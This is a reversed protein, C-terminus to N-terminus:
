QLKGGARRMLGFFSWFSQAAVEVMSLRCTAVYNYVLTGWGDALDVVSACDNIQMQRYWINLMSMFWSILIAEWVFQIQWVICCCYLAPSLVMVTVQQPLLQEQAIDKCDMRENVMERGQAMWYSYVCSYYQFLTPSLFSSSSLLGPPFPLLFMLISTQKLINILRYGRGAMVLVAWVPISWM